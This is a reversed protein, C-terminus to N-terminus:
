RTRGMYIKDTDLDENRPASAEAGEVWELNINHENTYNAGDCWLEFRLNTPGVVARIEFSVRYHSQGRGFGFLRRHVKEWKRRPIESLDAEVDLEHVARGYKTSKPPSDGDYKMVKITLTGVDDMEEPSRFASFPYRLSKDNEQVPKDKIVFWHIQNRARKLGDLKDTFLDEGVHREKDYVPQVVIGFSARSAKKVLVSKGVKMRQLCDFVLGKAVSLQPEHSVIIKLNSVNPHDYDKFKQELRQCIYASSGLGGSLVIYSVKKNKHMEQMDTLQREILRIIKDALPDFFGKFDDRSFKMKGDTINAAANTLAECGHVVIEYFPANGTPLGFACKCGEFTTSRSTTDRMMAYAKKTAETIGGAELRRAVLDIFAQDIFVAGINAGQVALVDDLHVFRDEVKTIELLALDTTGGGADCVLVVDKPYFAVFSEQITYVAAAQPEYLGIEVSHLGKKSGDAFGAEKILNKFDDATSLSWTSPVSFIFCIKKDEWSHSKKIQERIHRYLYKLYDRYWKHINTRTYGAQPNKQCFQELKEPDLYTKFWEKRGEDHDHDECLFGWKVKSGKYYITSPVKFQVVGLKGPWSHIMKPDTM